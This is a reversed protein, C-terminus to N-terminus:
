INLYIKRTLNEFLDYGDWVQSFALAQGVPVIRDVGRGGLQSAFAQLETKSFGFYTITQDKRTLYPIAAELNEIQHELFLGSGCHLERSLGALSKLQVRYPFHNDSASVESVENEIAYGYGCVLRDVATVPPFGGHKKDITKVFENWFKHKATEVEGSNGVWIIMRPSSCAKQNFWFTDNYFNDLFHNFTVAEADLLAACEIVSFSFKDPFVLETAYPPIPIARINQITQDGGWIVRVDCNLSLLKSITEDHGYRLVLNRQKIPKFQPESLLKNILDTLLQIQENSQQSLRVINNNGVLLAIFWSYIFISDVNAPAFHLVTGRPLWINDHRKQDFEQKLKEIHAKRMWFGLAILEPFTRFSPAELLRTSFHQIFDRVNESFPQLPPLSTLQELYGKLEEPRNLYQRDLVLEIM